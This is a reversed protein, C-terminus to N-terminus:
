EDNLLARIPAFSKRHHPTIGLHALAEQHAKTGYGKNSAWCYGPFVLDLKRMIRDRTVKAIISGAAISLSKQDGKIIPDATCHFPPTMNGDVLIHQATIPLAAVAEQMARKTAQLINIRDITEVDVIGVGIHATEQLKAFLLERKKESVKKSDNLGDPIDHPNLIVAAAVVPGAWPGRGAEDVGAILLGGAKEELSFDPMIEILPLTQRTPVM